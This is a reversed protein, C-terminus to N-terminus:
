RKIHVLLLLKPEQELFFFFFLSSFTDLGLIRWLRWLEFSILIGELLLTLYPKMNEGEGHWVRKDGNNWWIDVVVYMGMGCIYTWVCACCSRLTHDGRWPDWNQNPLVYWSLISCGQFVKLEVYAQYNYPSFLSPIISSQRIGFIGCIKLPSFASCWQQRLSSDVFVVYSLSSLIMRLFRQTKNQFGQL